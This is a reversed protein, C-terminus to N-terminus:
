DGGLLLFLGLSFLALGGILYGASTGQPPTNGGPAAPPDTSYGPAPAQTNSAQPPQAAASAAVAPDNAIPDRYLIFWDCGTSTPCWPASGGQQRESICRQGATGLAPNSCGQLVANWAQDFVALAAAQAQPTKQAAPAALWRQLNPKLYESEIQNVIATAQEKTVDPKFLGGILSTLAGVAGVIAGAIPNALAIPGAAAMISGGVTNTIQQSSVDGIGRLGTRPMVFGRSWGVQALENM